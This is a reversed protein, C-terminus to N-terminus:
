VFDKSDSSTSSIIEISTGATAIFQMNPDYLEEIPTEGSLFGYVMQNYQVDNLNEWFPSVAIWTEKLGKKGVMIALPGIKKFVSLDTFGYQATEQKSFHQDKKIIIDNDTLGADKIIQACEERVFNRIEEDTM